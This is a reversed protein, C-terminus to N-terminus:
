EEPESEVYGPYEVLFRVRARKAGEADFNDAVMGHYSVLINGTRDDYFDAGDQFFHM